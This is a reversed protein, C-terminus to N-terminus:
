DLLHERKHKIDVLQNKIDLLHQVILIESAKFKCALEDIATKLRENEIGPNYEEPKEALYRFQSRAKEVGLRVGVNAVENMALELGSPYSKKCDCRIEPSFLIPETIGNNESRVRVFKTTESKDVEVLGIQKMLDAIQHLRDELKVLESVDAKIKLTLTPSNNESM